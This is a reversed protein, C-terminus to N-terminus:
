VTLQKVTARAPWLDAPLRVHVLEKALRSKLGSLTAVEGAVPRGELDSSPFGRSCESLAM